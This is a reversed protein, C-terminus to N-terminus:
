TTTSVAPRSCVFVVKSTISAVVPCFPSCCARINVSDAPTVPITNVFSSPVAFPPTTTAIERSNPSGTRYTPTPSFAPSKSGNSGLSNTSESNSYSYNHGVAFLPRPELRQDFEQLPQEPPLSCRRPIRISVRHRRQPAPGLPPAPRRDRLNLVVGKQAKRRPVPALAGTM